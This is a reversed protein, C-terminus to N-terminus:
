SKSGQEGNFILDLQNLEDATIERHFVGSYQVDSKSSMGRLYCYYVGGFHRQPDYDNVALKLQRHLALSYILYQLDYHHKENNELMAQHQYGIFSDGLYTSKYDCVFYKGEHEFILDIFGHMMGKLQQYHPLQVQRVTSEDVRHQQRHHWLLQTLAAGNAESMPFYFETEHLMHARDLQRFSTDGIFKASVIEELWIQLESHQWSNLLEPYREFYQAIDQQWEPKSFDTYEFIEHLLNGANAGKTLLFRMASACPNENIQVLPVTELDRDPLSMGVHRLNKSLATFSSLWWDREIKGNFVPVEPKDICQRVDLQKVEEVADVTTLGIAEPYENELGLLSQEIDEEAQWKLTQGLPSLHCKDFQTTLMYCQREARTVAVYLLRISEAYAEAAMNQLFISDAGLTVQQKGQKDHYDIVNVKRAGVRTPDKYRASFPVFVVPYELGKSGHQTVIKILDADSELRLEAENEVLDLSMQQELWYLLEQPQKYRQSASQLLEFLHLINTLVRDNDHAPVRMHDHLLQIAMAIFGKYHWDDRLALFAFKLTQWQKEDAQLELLKQHSFSLLGCALGAIFYHDNEVFLVAKLLRTLQLAQESQWLNAKNSLFVGALGSASLANKIEQAEGGDRVLIAIDQAQYEKSQTSLLEVIKNACWTAMETRYSQKVVGGEEVDAPKFHVFQLAKDNLSSSSFSSAKPSAKVPQYPINYGFVEKGARALNDGYFLRNYATIMQQSSRWNTDMVWHYQCYERASLYTFIDGGRFGYIAQKPDGILYLANPMSSPYISQLISFQKPDTDQFEDVLAAPYQQRVLQALKGADDQALQDALTTILDDFTLLKLQSKKAEVLSAIKGLGQKVVLYAKAKTIRDGLSKVEDKLQNANAFIQYLQPKLAKPFRGGNFFKVPYPNEKLSQETIESSGLQNSLWLNLAEFEQERVAKDKSKKNNILNEVIFCHNSALDQQVAMVLARFKERVTHEDTLLLQEHRGIATAFHQMFSHPHSWYHSLLIYQEPAEKALLRYWDQCAELTLDKGSSEMNLNFALGTNFAYQSLLRKCFGHLTFIAAEDLYLLAQRLRSKAQQENLTKSLAQYFEDTEVLSSWNTLSDRIVEGIRGRIEETADKTFTMVLIQEVCLESELLLRLYIRTINFTKGTGASAEILHKGDLPLQQAILPKFEM